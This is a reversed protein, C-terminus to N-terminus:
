SEEVTVEILNEKARTIAVYALNSEQEQMWPLTAFKSPMYLNRGYLFVTPWELGKSKHISSLTLRPNNPNSSSFLETIFNTLSLISTLAPLLSLTHIATLTDNLTALKFPPLKAAQTQYHKDLKHRLDPLSNPELKKILRLYTEAQDKGEFRCPIGHNCCTIILSMLPANNRCLIASTKHAASNIQLESLFKKNDWTQVSGESADERARIHPVIKQAHAIVAKSCRFSTTLSLKTANFDKAIRALSDNDAGTFGFIAQPQDGVAILRGCPFYNGWSAQEMAKAIDGNASDAKLLRKAVERRTANTDQAEDIFVFDFKPFDMGGALPMWIMDSFDIENTDKISLAFLEECIRIFKDLSVKDEDWGIDHNSIIEIWSAQTTQFLFGMGSDKAIGVVKCITESLSFPISHKKLLPTLLKSLKFGLVKAKPYKTKLAALGFGHVTNVTTNLIGRALVKAKLEDRISAGYSLLACEASPFHHNIAVLMELITHSKGSGAVAELLLNGSSTTIFSIAAEQEPTLKTSPVPLPPPPPTLSPSFSLM